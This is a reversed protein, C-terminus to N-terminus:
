LPAIAGVEHQGTAPSDFRGKIVMRFAGTMTPCLRKITLPYRDRPVTNFNGAIQFAPYKGNQSAEDNYIILRVTEPDHYYALQCNVLRGQAFPGSFDIDGDWGGEPGDSDFWFYAWEPHYVDAPFNPAWPMLLYTIRETGGPGDLDKGTPIWFSEVM